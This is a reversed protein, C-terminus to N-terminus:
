FKLSATFGTFLIDKGTGVSRLYAGTNFWTFEARLYLYKNPSYEINGSIQHGIFAEDSDGAPYIVNAGPNYIGDQKSYRWFIDYDVSSTLVNSIPVSLSPHIDFLNSPGILAAYGFYAGRPFLPNFSQVRRDDTEADGSILETKLGAIPSFRRNGLVYSNNFSLTWASITSGDLSGFQYLGEIDYSFKNGADWIRSGVSHRIEKGEVDSWTAHDRKIGLYYLDVNRVIPVKNKVLYGGWLKVRKGLIEDNFIGHKSVVYETYYLDISMNPSTLIMKAGDFAQRNNPGERTSILRSSGYSLEQRGIRIILSAFEGHFLPIDIFAQHLDLENQEVSSPDIRGDVLNAQLQVFARLKHPFHFDAHMMFRSLIYGDDDPQVDGWDENTYRFYQYRVEGGLSLYSEGREDLKSFKMSGYWDLASSDKLFDYREDFRLNKFSGQGNASLSIVLLIFLIPRM